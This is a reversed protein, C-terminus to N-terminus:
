TTEKQGSPGGLHFHEQVFSRLLRGAPSLHKDRKFCLM